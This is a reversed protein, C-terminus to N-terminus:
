PATSITLPVGTWSGGKELPAPSFTFSTATQMMVM